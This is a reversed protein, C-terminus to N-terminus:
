TGERPKGQSGKVEMALLTVVSCCVSLLNYGYGIPSSGHASANHGLMSSQSLLLLLLRRMLVLLVSDTSLCTTWYCRRSVVREIDWVRGLIAIRM